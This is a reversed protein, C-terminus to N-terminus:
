FMNLATLFTELTPWMLPRYGSYGSFFRGELMASHPHTQTQSQETNLVIQIGGLSQVYRAYSINLPSISEMHYHHGPVGEIVTVQRAMQTKRARKEGLIQPKSYRHRFATFKRVRM